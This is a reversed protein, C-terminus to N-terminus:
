ARIPFPAWYRRRAVLPHVFNCSRRYESDLALGAVEPQQRASPGRSPGRRRLHGANQGHRVRGAETSRAVVVGGRGEYLM